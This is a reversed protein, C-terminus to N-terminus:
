VVTQVLIAGDPTPGLRLIKPSDADARFQLLLGGDREGVRGLPNGLVTWWPDDEDGSAGGEGHGAPHAEAALMDGAARLVRGWALRADGHELDEPNRGQLVRRAEDFDGATRLGDLYLALLPENQPTAELAKGPEDLSAYVLAMYDPPVAEGAARRELESCLTRAKEPRGAAVLARALLAM